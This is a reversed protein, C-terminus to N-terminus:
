VVKTYGGCVCATKALESIILWLQTEMTNIQAM